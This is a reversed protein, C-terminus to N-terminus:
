YSGDFGAIFPPTEGAQLQMEVSQYFTVMNRPEYEEAINLMTAFNADEVEIVPEGKITKEYWQAAEEKSAAVVYECDDLKWIGLGTVARLASGRPATKWWARSPYDNKDATYPRYEGNRRFGWGKVRPGHLFLTWAEDGEDLLIRHFDHGRILNVQGPFLRRLAGDRVESYGGALILSVSWGWPHDHLGRDPDSALFRHLYVRWGFLGGLSYRELYPESHEGRIERAPLRATLWLLFRAMRHGTTM